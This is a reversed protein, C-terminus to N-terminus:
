IDEQKKTEEVLMGFFHWGYSELWKFFAKRWEEEPINTVITGEIEIIHETM